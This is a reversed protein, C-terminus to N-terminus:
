LLGTFERTQGRWRAYLKNGDRWILMGELYNPWTESTIKEGMLYGALAGVITDHTIYLDIVGPQQEGATVLNLLATLQAPPEHDPWNMPLADWVPEIFPHSIKLNQGVVGQFKAGRAIAEATQRCREVFNTVIHRIPRLEVLKEGMEEALRVGEPTLTASYVSDDDLIPYRVSHRLVVTVPRDTPSSAIADLTSDYLPM